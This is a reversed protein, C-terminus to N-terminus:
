TSYRLGACGAAMQFINYNITSVMIDANFKNLWEVDIKELFKYNDFLYEYRYECVIKKLKVFSNISKETIKLKNNSNNTSYDCEFNYLIHLEELNVFDMLLEDSIDSIDLVNNDDIILKLVFKSEFVQLEKLEDYNGIYYWIIDRLDKIELFKNLMLDCM